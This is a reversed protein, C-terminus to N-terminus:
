ESDRDPDLRHPSPGAGADAGVALSAEIESLTLLDAGGLEDVFGDPHDPLDVYVYAARVSQTGVGRSAALAHVYVSLQDVPM